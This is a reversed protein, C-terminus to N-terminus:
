FKTWIKFLPFKKCWFVNPIELTLSPFKMDLTWSSFRLNLNWRSIRDSFRAIRIQFSQLLIRSPFEFSFEWLKARCEPFDWHLYSCNWVNLGSSAFRPSRSESPVKLPFYWNRLDRLSSFFEIFVFNWVNFTDFKYWNPQDLGFWRITDLRLNEGNLNIM